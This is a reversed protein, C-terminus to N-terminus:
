LFRVLNNRLAEIDEQTPHNKYLGGILKYPGYSDWGLCNFTGLTTINYYDLKNCLYSGLQQNNSGATYIVYVQKNSLLDHFNEVFEILKKHHRGYFIGSALGVITVGDLLSENFDDISTCLIDLGKSAEEVLKKTNMHHESHYIILMKAM